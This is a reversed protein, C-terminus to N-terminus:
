LEASWILNADTSRFQLIAADGASAASSVSGLVLWGADFTTNTHAWSLDSTQNSGNGGPSNLRWTGSPTFSPAARMNVPLTYPFAGDYGNGSFWGSAGVMHNSDGRVVHCYRKCRLLEDGYSRHEFDTAGYDGIELQVGTINIYNSTSDALNVQSPHKRNASVNADWAGNRFTGGATALGSAFYMYIRLGEATTAGFKTGTTDANYILTKREWTDASDITYAMSSGRTAISSYLEMTYTGTKNSKVWFSLAYKKAGSTGNGFRVCDQNEIKYWLHMYDSTGLSTDATTCDLKYSNVFGDPADTSQSVTWTGANSIAFEFRDCCKYGGSTVSAVSTNRQSVTMAGNAVVNRNSLNNTIKATCTGDTALAIANGNAGAADSIANVKLTSM